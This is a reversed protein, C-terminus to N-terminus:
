NVFVLVVIISVLYIALFNVLNQVVFYGADGRTKQRGISIFIHSLLDRHSHNHTSLSWANYYIFIVMSTFFVNRESEYKDIKM